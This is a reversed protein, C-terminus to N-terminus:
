ALQLYCPAVIKSNPVRSGLDLCPHDLQNAIGGGSGSRLAQCPAFLLTM